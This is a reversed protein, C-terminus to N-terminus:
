RHAAALAERLEDADLRPGYGPTGPQIRWGEALPGVDVVDFGLEDIFRRRHGQCRRRRGRHGARAPRRYRGAGSPSTDAAQIHNFAKVVKSAPLHEQLLESPDHPEDDLEAIHGDRECYYNNTDIVIKGALPEVPVDRYAKFPVTVVAIDGRRPPRRPRTAQAHQPGLERGPGGADGPRALQQARRRARARHRAARDSQRHTRSGILGITTM